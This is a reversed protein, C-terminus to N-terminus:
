YGRDPKIENIYDSKGNLYRNLNQEFIEIARTLYLPSKGSIHPTLTVKEHSWLPHDKPLPEEEFVDLVAHTIEENDLAQILLESSVADGRGMNLFVATKPMQKFHDYQFYDKTENTSPLVSVVFDAEKLPVELNSTSYTEDFYEKQKGSHSVGYTKMRFAKALRAVEQGIAGTGVVVMTKGTIEMMPVKRDWHHNLQNLTVEKASRYVQLLMSIAYEAMQTKHIGKSNTMLINRTKIESFPMLEMGASLVMIWKLKGARDIIDPTIDEGYTLIIEVESINDNAEEMTRYFQFELSPYKEQLYTRLESTLKTTSLALM